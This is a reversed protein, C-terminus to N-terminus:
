KLTFLFRECQCYPIVYATPSARYTRADTRYRRRENIDSLTSMSSASSATRIHRERGNEDALPLESLSLLAVERWEQLYLDIARLLCAIALFNM